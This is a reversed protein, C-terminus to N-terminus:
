YKYFNLWLKAGFSVFHHYIVIGFYSVPLVPSYSIETRYYVTYNMSFVRYISKIILRLIYTIMRLKNSLHVAIFVNLM